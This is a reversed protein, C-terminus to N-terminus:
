VGGGKRRLVERVEPSAILQGWNRFKVVAREVLEASIDDPFRCLGVVMIDLPRNEAVARELSKRSFDGGGIVFSHEVNPKTPPVAPETMPKSAGQNAVMRHAILSIIWEGEDPIGRPTDFPKIRASIDQLIARFEDKTAYLSESSLTLPEDAEPHDAHQNVAGLAENIILQFWENLMGTVEDRPATGLVDPAMRLSKAVSRYYKELIGGRERTEVLHVVGIRELERVHYHVKAPSEGVREGLQTVTMPERALTEVLRLRLPDSIARMQEITTLYFVEAIDEM